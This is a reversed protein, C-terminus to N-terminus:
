IKSTREMLMCHKMLKGSVFVMRWSQTPMMITGNQGVVDILAEIITQAGGC